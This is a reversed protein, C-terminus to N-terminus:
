CGGLTTLTTVNYFKNVGKFATPVHTIGIDAGNITNGTITETGCTSFAIGYLVNTVANNQITAGSVDVYIGIQTNSIHNSTIHAAANVFISAYIGSQPGAGILTNGSVTTFPSAVWINVGFLTNGSITGAANCLPLIGIGTASVNNGTISATLTSPTQDSCTSIGYTASDHVNSNKITVAQPAGAGNEAVIGVGSSACNQNRTEVENITGASGSSYFVGVEWSPSTPCNTTGATGDVTINSINVPGATVEVQAAAQAGNTALLISPATTLGTSPVAIVVRARSKGPVGQLTLPKSIVLQEAYTGPCVNIISGAPVTNIAKHITGFSGAMCSGVYYTAAAAPQVAIVLMPAFLALYFHRM